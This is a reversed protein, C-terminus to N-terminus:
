GNLSGIYVLLEGFDKQESILRREYVSFMMNQFINKWFYEGYSFGMAEKVQNEVRVLDEDIDYLLLVSKDGKERLLLICKGFQYREGATGRKLSRKEARVILRLVKRDTGAQRLEKLAKDDKGKRYYREGLVLHCERLKKDSLPFGDAHEYHLVAERYRGQYERVFGKLFPYAPTLTFFFCVLGLVLLTIMRKKWVRRTELRTIQRKCAEIQEKAQKGYRKSETVRRYNAIADVYDNKESATEQRKKAQLFVEKYGEERAKGAAERCKEARGAADRYDGLKEFKAAASKLIKVKQEFRIVCEAADVLSEADNYIREERSFSKKGTEAM